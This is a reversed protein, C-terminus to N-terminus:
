KECEIAIPKNHRLHDRRMECTTLCVAVVIIVLATLDYGNM